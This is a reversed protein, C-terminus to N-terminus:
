ISAKVEPGSEAVRERHCAPKKRRNWYLARAVQKPTAEGYNAQHGRKRRSPQPPNSNNM